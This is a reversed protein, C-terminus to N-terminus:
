GGGCTNAIAGLAALVLLVLLMSACGGEDEDENEHSEPPPYPQAKRSRGCHPCARAMHPMIQECEECPFTLKEEPTASAPADLGYKKM